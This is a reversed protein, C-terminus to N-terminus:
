STKVIPVLVETKLFNKPTERPDNLYFEISYTGTEIKERKAYELIKEYTEGVKQYPGKHIMRVYDGFIINMKDLNGEPSISEPCTIGISLDWKYFFMLNIASLFGKKNLQDWNVNNYKAFPMCNDGFEIDHKKLIESISKYIPAMVKGLSLTGVIKSECLAYEQKKQVITIESM